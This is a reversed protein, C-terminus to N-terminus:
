AEGCAVGGGTPRRWRLPRGDICACVAAWRGARCWWSSLAVHLYGREPSSTLVGSPSSVGTSSCLKPGAMRPQVLASVLARALACVLAVILACVLAFAGAFHVGVAGEVQGEMAGVHHGGYHGRPAAAGPGDM